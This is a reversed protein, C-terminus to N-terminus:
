LPLHLLVNHQAVQHYNAVHVGMESYVIFKSCKYSQLVVHTRGYHLTIETICSKMQQLLRGFSSILAKVCGRFIGHHVLRLLLLYFEACTVKMTLERQQLLQINPLVNQYFQYCQHKKSSEKTRFM